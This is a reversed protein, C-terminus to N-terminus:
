THSVALRDHPRRQGAQPEPVHWVREVGRMHGHRQERM